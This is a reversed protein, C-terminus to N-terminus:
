TSTLLPRPQIPMQVNATLTETRLGGLRSPRDLAGGLNNKVEWTLLFFIITSTKLIKGFGKMQFVPTTGHQSTSIATPLPDESNSLSQLPNAMGSRELVANNSDTQISRLLSIDAGTQCRVGIRRDDIGHARSQQGLYGPPLNLIAETVLCDTHHASHSVAPLTNSATVTTYTSQTQFTIACACFGSKTKRRSPCTWKFRRPRWNMRSSAASTHADANTISSVRLESTTHLTSAVWEMRWDGESGRGHTVTHWWM